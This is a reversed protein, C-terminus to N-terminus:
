EHFFMALSGPTRDLSVFVDGDGDGDIDDILSGAGFLDATASSLFSPSSTDVSLSGGATISRADVHGCRSQGPECALMDVDGDDDLDSVGRGARLGGSDVTGDIHALALDEVTAAGEGPAGNLIWVRGGATATTDSGPSSLVMEDYGDGTVDPLSGVTTIGSAGGLYPFDSLSGSGILSLDIGNLVHLHTALEGAVLGVAEIRGDGDLDGVTGSATCAGNVEQWQFASNQDYGGGEALLLTQFVAIASGTAGAGCGVFIEGEGDGDGDSIVDVVAGSNPTLGWSVATEVGITAGGTLVSTPYIFAGGYPTDIAPGGVLLVEVGGITATAVSTGFAQGVTGSTINALGELEATLVGNTTPLVWVRGAGDSMGPVGVALDRRGDGNRDSLTTIAAGFLDEGAGSDGTVSMTADRDNIIDTLGDCDDDVTNWAERMEPGINPDLDNCDEGSDEVRYAGDEDQDYDDKTDCDEDIGDYWVEPAGPYVAPNEDDCDDGRVSGDDDCDTSEPDSGDCNDDLRNYCVEAVGPNITPNSDDCDDGGGNVGVYGDGDVDNADSGDCDQDIGDYPIETAGPYTWPDDPDCDATDPVGDGDTDPADDATDSGGAPKAKATPGCAVLHLLPFLALLALTRM